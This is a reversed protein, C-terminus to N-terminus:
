MKQWEKGSSFFHRLCFSDTWSRDRRRAYVYVHTSQVCIRIYTHRSKTWRSQEFSDAWSTDRRRAYVYVHTSQVCVFIHIGLNLGDPYNPGELHGMSAGPSVVLYGMQETHRHTHTYVCTCGCVSGGANFISFVCVVGRDKRREFIVGWALCCNNEYVLQAGGDKNGLALHVSQVYILAYACGTALTYVFKFIYASACLVQEIYVGACAHNGSCRDSHM